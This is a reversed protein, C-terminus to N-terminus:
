VGAFFSRILIDIGKSPTIRGVSLISQGRHNGYPIPSDALGSYGNPIVHLKRCNLVFNSIMQFGCSSEIIIEDFFCSNLLTVAKQIEALFVRDKFTGDSDMKLIFRTKSGKFYFRRLLRFALVVFPNAFSTNYCIAFQPKIELLLNLVKWFERVNSSIHLHRSNKTLYVNFPLAAVQDSMDAVIVYVSFGLKYLELPILLPDKKMHIEKFVFFPIYFVCRGEKSNVKESISTESAGGQSHNVM